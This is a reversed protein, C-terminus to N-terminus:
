WSGGGGGGSFGGIGGISGGGSLGSGSLFNGQSRPASIMVHSM